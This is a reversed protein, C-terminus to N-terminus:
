GRSFHAGVPVEDFELYKWLAVLLKRALAVIGIRRQRKSGSGFRRQYWHSLKSTPQWRLWLWALEVALTRVRRNGAKSIGQERESEGSSYATGTLGALAGVERRNRFDRRAFFEHSLTWAGMPGIARLAMLKCAKREAETQADRLRQDRQEELVGIQEIVLELRQLEREIEERWAPMLPRDAWDRLDGVSLGRVKGVRIGHLALLSRIRNVHQNKEGVLRERERHLRMQEEQEPTAVRLVRWLGREGHLHHRVLHRLLLEVDLRDTKRRRMRREVPISAPDVVVNHVGGSQLFWHISSGDRGAEYCSHVPVDPELGLKEKARQVEAWVAAQDWARVRRRRLKQGDRTFGLLWSANSVEIAM